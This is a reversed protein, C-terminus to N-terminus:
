RIGKEGKGEEEDANMPKATDKGYRMTDDNDDEDSCMTMFLLNAYDRGNKKLSRGRRARM